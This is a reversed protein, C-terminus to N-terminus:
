RRRREAGLDFTLVQEGDLAQDDAGAGADEGRDAREAVTLDDGDAGHETM